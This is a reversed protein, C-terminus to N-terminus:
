AGARGQRGARLRGAGGESQRDRGGPGRARAKLARIEREHEPWAADAAPAAGRASDASGRGGLPGRPRRMAASEAPTHSGAFFAGGAGARRLWAGAQAATPRDARGPRADQHAAGRGGRAAGGRGRAQARQGTAPQRRTRRAASSSATSRRLRRRTSRPRRRSRSSTASPARRWSPLRATAISCCANPRPWGRRWRRCGTPWPRSWCEGRTRTKKWTPRSQRRVDTELASITADRRNIEILHRAREFKAQDLRTELEHVKVAYEARLRDRDAKIEPESVPMAQKLRKTTLRVASSWFASALLLGLLSAILFGLAVLMGSQISILPAEEAERGAAMGDHVGLGGASNAWRAQRAPSPGCPATTMGCHPGPAFRALRTHHSPSAEGKAALNWLCKRSAFWVLISTTWTRKDGFNAWGHRSPRRCERCSVLVPELDAGAYVEPLRRQCGAAPRHRHSDTGHDHEGNKQFTLGVGGVMYASGDVGGFRRYIDAPDRLNYVLVMVKSGDGGADYGISPGQWYVRHNGADKTYLVGEGYRLGAISRAAPMRAWSTATPAARSSSPTNSWRRWARRSRVSSATDPMSSRTRPTATTRTDDRRQRLAAAGVPARTPSGPGPSALHRIAARRTPHPRARRTAPTRRPRGTPMTGPPPQYNRPVRAADVGAISLGALLGGALLIVTRRIAM